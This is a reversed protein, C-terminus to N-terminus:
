DWVQTHRINSATLVEIPNHQFDLVALELSPNWVQIVRKSTPCSCLLKSLSASKVKGRAVATQPFLVLIKIFLSFTNQGPCALNLSVTWSFHKSLYQHFSFGKTFLPFCVDQFAFATPHHIDTEQVTGLFPKTKSYVTWSALSFHQHCDSDKSYLSYKFLSSFDM